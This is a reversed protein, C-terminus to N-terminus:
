GPANASRGPKGGMGECGAWGTGAIIDLSTVVATTEVRLEKAVCSGVTKQRRWGEEAGLHGRLSRRERAGEHRGEDGGKVM